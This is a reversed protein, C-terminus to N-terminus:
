SSSTGRRWDVGPEFPCALHFCPDIKGVSPGRTAGGARPAIGTIADPVGVPSFHSGAAAAAVSNCRWVM